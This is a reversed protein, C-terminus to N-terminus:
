LAQRANDPDYFPAKVVEAEVTAGSARRIAFASGIAARAPPVYALGLVIGGCAVSRAASTVRGAIEGGEIVLCCEEPAEALRDRLRFGALVREFGRAARVRHAARGIYDPKTKGIAWEMGAEHPTSLGDTDQSIIVHGKELRLLRQAEVGFPQIGAAHGAAMLADWLAEGDAMPVHIEYGLEGVFGVRLLRAAIGSIRGTRVGMYPFAPAALDVGEALPTLVTRALPGAINVAAFAGTANAIDVNMAWQAQWWTLARFTADANGTTATVYFHDEALRCAVGDDVIAGAEDCLVAYRGRGVPQKLHPTTYLRDLFAAADPGRVEIGGLTSVDILGVSERVARVEAAVAAEAGYAAGYWAPRVWAGAPMFQAGLAVHRAQMTTYRTPTVTRGALLGMREGTFPPRSTTPAFDEPALGRAAAAVRLVAPAAQRGQSPGMAATTYRKLHEPHAFGDTIANEIDRITLDEDLDVFERGKSHRIVPSPREGGAAPRPRM